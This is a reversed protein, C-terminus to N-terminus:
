SRVYEGAILALANGNSNQNDDNLLQNNFKAARLADEIIERQNETIIFTMQGLENKDGDPLTPFAVMDPLLEREDNALAELMANVDADSFRVDDLLDFLNDSDHTAMAALPDITLLLKDAEEATVDLVLVPVNQDHMVDRRLHGDILQLGEPTERAIVADAIGIEDLVGSLAKRQGEPHTRWNRPNPILKSAPVREFRKIRDKIYM